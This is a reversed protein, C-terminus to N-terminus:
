GRTEKIERKVGTLGEAWYNFSSMIWNFHRSLGVMHPFLTQANVGYPNLEFMLETRYKRDIIIQDMRDLPTMGKQLSLTPPNHHTFVGIQRSVRDSVRTPTFQTVGQREFPTQAKTDRLVNSTKFCHIVSDGDGPDAVAFWAAALSKSTWDLLRTAFGHHQAM